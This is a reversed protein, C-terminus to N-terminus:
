GLFPSSLLSLMGCRLYYWRNVRNSNTSSAAAEGHQEVVHAIKVAQKQQRKQGLAVNPVNIGNIM